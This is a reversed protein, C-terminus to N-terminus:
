ASMNRTHNAFLHFVHICVHVETVELRPVVKETTEKMCLQLGAHSIFQMRMTDMINSNKQQMFLKALVAKDYQVLGM